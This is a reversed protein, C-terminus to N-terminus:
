TRNGGIAEDLDQGRIGCPSTCVTLCEPSCFSCKAWIRFHESTFLGGIVSRRDYHVLWVFGSKNIKSALRISYPPSLISGFKEGLQSRFLTGVQGPNPAGLFLPAYSSLRSSNSFYDFLTRCAPKRAGEELREKLPRM